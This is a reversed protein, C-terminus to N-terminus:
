AGYMCFTALLRLGQELPIVISNTYIARFICNFRRLGQELPIVISDVLGDGTRPLMVLRLGQELPIVISYRSFVESM